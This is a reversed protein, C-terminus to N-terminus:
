GLVLGGPIVIAYPLEKIDRAPPVPPEQWWHHYVESVPPYVWWHCEAGDRAPPRAMLAVRGARAVLPPYVVFVSRLVWWHCGVLFRLVIPGWIVIILSHGKILRDHGTRPRVGPGTGSTVVGKRAFPLREPETPAPAGPESPEGGSSTTAGFLALLRTINVVTQSREHRALAQTRDARRSASTALAV